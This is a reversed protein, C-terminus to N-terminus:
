ESIAEWDTTVEVDADRMLNMVPCRNEVNKKLRAVRDAPENTALRIKLRVALFYPRVGQVGRSGRGDVEGEAEMEVHGYEFGMAAACRNIIVGECGALAALVTELPSPGTNGDGAEDTIIEHGRVKIVTRATNENRATLKRIGIKKIKPDVSPPLLDPDSM